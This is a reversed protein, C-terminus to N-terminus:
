GQPDTREAVRSSDVVRVPTGVRVLSALWVADWNTLRFCGHSGTKGINEPEPTGHLGVGPRDLGIWRLGVPCRPGPPITLKQTVEKVEPWKKPDFTYNPEKVVVAVACDGRVAGTLDKAVSCHLLGVLREEADLVLVLKRGLDIELAAAAPPAGPAWLAPVVLRDGARLATLDVGPNLEGLCRESTHLKEAVLNSLSPYLLRDRLSRETWDPPCFSVQLEDEATVVYDTVAPVGELRLAAFTPADFKGSPELGAAIQFARLARVTKPGVRGDVRGPSFGHAELAAQWAMATSRRTEEGLATDAGAGSAPLLALALDLLCCRLSPRFRM